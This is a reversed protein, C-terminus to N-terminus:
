LLLPFGLPLEHYQPRLPTCFPGPGNLLPKTRVSSSALALNAAAQPAQSLAAPSFSSVGVACSFVRIGRRGSRYKRKHQTHTGLGRRPKGGDISARRPRRDQGAARRDLLDRAIETALDILDIGLYDRKASSLHQAQAPLACHVGLPNSLQSSLQLLGLPLNNFAYRVDGLLQFEDGVQFAETVVPGGRFAKESEEFFDLPHVLLMALGDNSFKVLQVRGQRKLSGAARATSAPLRGELQGGDGQAKM